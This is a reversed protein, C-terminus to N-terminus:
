RQSKKLLNVLWNMLLAIRHNSRTMEIFLCKVIYNRVSIPALIFKQPHTLILGILRMAFYRDGKSSNNYYGSIYPQLLTWRSEKWSPLKEKGFHSQFVNFIRFIGFVGKNNSGAVYSFAHLVHEISHNLTIRNIFNSIEEERLNAPSKKSCIANVVKALDANDTQMSTTNSKIFDYLRDNASIESVDLIQGIVKDAEAFTREKLDIDTLLGDIKNELEAVSHIRNIIFGSVDDVWAALPYVANNLHIVPIRDLMAELAATTFYNLLLCIDSVELAEDLTTKELFFFNPLQLEDMRRYLEYYDYSPHAKIIFTLDKRSMILTLLEDIAERHKRPIAIPSAFGTNIQATLILIVPNDLPIGLHQKSKNKLEKGIGPLKQIYKKLKTEYRISGIKYLRSEAVGYLKLNTIDINNWVLISDAEGVTGRCCFKYKIGGHLLGIAQINKKRAVRVLVRELTFAEYGFFIMSPRLIDLFTSFVNGCEVALKMEDWVCKFQFNLHPNAFIEPHPGAYNAATRIFAEWSYQLRKDVDSEKSTGFVSCKLDSIDISVVKWGDKKKFVDKLAALENSPMLDRVILVTKENAEKSKESPVEEFKRISFYKQNLNGHSLQYRSEKKEYPINHKDALWFLVAESVSNVARHAPAPGTRIVGVSPLFYGSIQDITYNKFIREYVTRANLCAEFPYVLEQVACNSLTFGEYATSSTNEDWWNKSLYHATEVNREIDIPELFDWEDIFPINLRELESAVVIDGTVPRMTEFLHPEKDLAYLLQSIDNFFLLKM